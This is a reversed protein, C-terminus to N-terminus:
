LCPTGRLYWAAREKSAGQQPLVVSLRGVLAREYIPIKSQVFPVFELSLGAEM